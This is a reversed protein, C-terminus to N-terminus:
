LIGTKERAKKAVKGYGDIRELAQALREWSTESEHAQWGEFFISTTINGRLQLGLQEGIRKWDPSTIGAGNLTRRVNDANLELGAAFTLYQYM